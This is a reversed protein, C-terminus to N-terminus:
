RDVTSVYMVVRSTPPVTTVRFRTHKNRENRRMGCESEGLTTSHRASFLGLTSIKLNFRIVNTLSLTMARLKGHKINELRLVTQKTLLQLRLERLAYITSSLMGVLIFVVSYSLVFCLYNMAHCRGLNPRRKHQVM